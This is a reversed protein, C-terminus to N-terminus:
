DNITEKLVKRILVLAKQAQKKTKFHNGSGFWPASSKYDTLHTEHQISLDTDVYWYQEGFIPKWKKQTKM